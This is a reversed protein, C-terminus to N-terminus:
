IENTTENGLSRRKKSWPFCISLCTSNALVLCDASKGCGNKPGTFCWTRSDECRMESWCHGNMCGMDMRFAEVPLFIAYIVLFTILGIVKFNM